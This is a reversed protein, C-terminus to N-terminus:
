DHDTMSLHWASPASNIKLVSAYCVCLYLQSAWHQLTLHMLTAVRCCVADFSNQSSPKSEFCSAAPYTVLKASMRELTCVAEKASRHGFISDGAAFLCETMRSSYCCLLAPAALGPLASWAVLQTCALNQGPFPM